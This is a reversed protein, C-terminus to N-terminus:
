IRLALELAIKLYGEKADQPLKGMLGPDWSVGDLNDETYLFQYFEVGRFRCVAAMSACEMDVAVCGEAKRREVNRRTERYLADTTWTRGKVFPLKLESLVAATRDATSLDIYDEGAPLYHYSVGEDRYAATPVILHGEPLERSLSGCSGFLIFKRGGRAIVEELMAASVAGGLLTQYVAMERGSYQVRHIPIQFFVPLHGLIESGEWAAMTDILSPQFTIVVTEPFGEVPQVADCPNLVAKRAPDYSDFLSM